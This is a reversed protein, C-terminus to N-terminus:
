STPAINRESQLAQLVSRQHADAKLGETVQPVRRDAPWRGQNRGIVELGPCEIVFALCRISVVEVIGCTIKDPLPDVQLTRFVPDGECARTIRCRCRIIGGEARSEQTPEAQVVLAIHAEAEKTLWLRSKRAVAIEEDTVVGADIRVRVLSLRYRRQHKRAFSRRTAAGKVSGAAVGREIVFPNGGEGTESSRLGKTRPGM